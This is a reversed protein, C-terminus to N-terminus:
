GLEVVPSHGGPHPGVEDTLQLRLLGIGDRPPGVDDLGDVPELEDPREGAAGTTARMAALAAYLETAAEGAFDVEVVNRGARYLRAEPVAGSLRAALDDALCAARERGVLRRLTAFNAIRAIVHFQVTPRSVASVFGMPHSAHSADSVPAAPDTM